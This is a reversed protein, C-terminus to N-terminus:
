YYDQGYPSVNKWRVAGKGWVFNIPEISVLKGNIYFDPYHVSLCKLIPESGLTSEQYKSYENDSGEFNLEYYAYYKKLLSRTKTYGKLEADAKLRPLGAAPTYINYDFDLDPVSGQMEYISDVKLIFPESVENSHIEFIDSALKVSQGEPVIIGVYLQRTGDRAKIATKVGNDIDYILTDKAHSMYHYSFKEGKTTPKYLYMTSMPVCSSAIILIVFTALILHKNNAISM